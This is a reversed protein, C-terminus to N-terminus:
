VTGAPRPPGAPISAVLRALAAASRVEAKAFVQRAHTKVTNLSVGLVGAAETLGLGSGLLAAVRTEAATLGVLRRLREAQADIPAQPDVIQVMARAGGDITSWPLFAPPPLPTVRVLLARRGSPRSVQLTDDLLAPREGRASALAQRICAALRSANDRAQARLARPGSGGTCLGDREGLLAEAAPTMQLIGGHGDLLIVAGPMNALLQELQCNGANARSTLLTLDIARSLHPVLEDLRAAAHGSADARAKSVNFLIGGVGDRSLDAHRVAIIEDIDQPALIDAHFASRHLVAKEVLEGTVLAKGIPARAFAFSYPNETHHQLFLQNLDDRLRHHVIFNGDGSASLHLVMGSDVGLHDTVLELASAWLEPRVAAQYIAVVLDTYSPELMTSRGM